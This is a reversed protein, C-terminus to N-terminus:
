LGALNIYHELPERYANKIEEVHSWGVEWEKVVMVLERTSQVDSECYNRILSKVELEFSMYKREQQRVLSFHGGLM